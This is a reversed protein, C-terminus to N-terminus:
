RNIYLCLHNSYKMSIDYKVYIYIYIYIINLNLRVFIYMYTYIYICINSTYINIFIGSTYM